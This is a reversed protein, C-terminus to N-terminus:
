PTKRSALFRQMEVDEVGRRHMEKDREYADKQEKGVKKAAANRAEVGDRAAKWAAEGRLPKVQPDSDTSDSM